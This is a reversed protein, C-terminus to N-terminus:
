QLWCHPNRISISTGTLTGAAQTATATVHYGSIAMQTGQYRPDLAIFSKINYHGPARTNLHEDRM